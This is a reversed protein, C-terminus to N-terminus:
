RQHASLVNRTKEVRAVVVMIRAMGEEKRINPMHLPREGKRDEAISRKPETETETEMEMPESRPRRISVSGIMTTPGIRVLDM